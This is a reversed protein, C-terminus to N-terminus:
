PISTCGEYAKKHGEKLGLSMVHPVGASVRQCWLTLHGFCPRLLLPPKLAQLVALRPLM